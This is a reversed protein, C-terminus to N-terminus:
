LYHKPRGVFYVLDYQPFNSEFYIFIPADLLDPFKKFLQQDGKVIGKLATKMERKFIDFRNKSIIESEHIGDVNVKGILNLTQSRDIHWEALVEDRLKPDIADTNFECGIDLFLQGTVDSHTLTYKRGKIPYCSNAPPMTRVTVSEQNFNSM